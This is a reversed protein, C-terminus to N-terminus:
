ELRASDDAVVPNNLAGIGEITVTVEDGPTLLGVGAPTGTLVVDGPFLTMASSIYALLDPVAWLMESTRGDQRQEGNVSCRIVLDAPDLETEIWAGLPCFTDFSKAFSPQGDRRQIDRATVDNACTYGFIAAAVGEPLLNRCRSGIVVALEAEYNVEQSVRPYVIAAGPGVVGSPPKFFIRPAESRELGLEQAHGAYNRGVAVIKGPVAPALLQAADLSVSQSAAQSGSRWPADSLYTVKDGTEVRVWGAQDDILVRAFRMLDHHLMPVHSADDPGM